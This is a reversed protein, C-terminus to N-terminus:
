VHWGKVPLGVNVRRDISAICDEWIDLQPPETVMQAIKGMAGTETRFKVYAEYASRSDWAEILIICNPKDANRLVRIDRFGPFKRTEELLIPMNIYMSEVAEPKLVLTVTVAIGDTM